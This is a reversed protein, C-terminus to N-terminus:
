PWSFRLCEPQIGQVLPTHPADCLFHPTPAEPLALTHAHPHICTPTHWAYCRVSMILPSSLPWSSAMLVGQVAPRVLPSTRARKAGRVLQELDQGEGGGGGSSRRSCSFLPSCAEGSAEEGRVKEDWM